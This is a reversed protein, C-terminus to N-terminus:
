PLYQAPVPNTATQAQWTIEIIHWQKGDFIAQISNIGRAAPKPDTGVHTEYTSWLHALHSWSETKVKIQHETFLMTGNKATSDIWGQVDLVQSTSSGDAAVRIPILRAGPLFLARFCSRDQNAPGSIAADMATILLDLTATSPCAPSQARLASSLVVALVLFFTLRRM